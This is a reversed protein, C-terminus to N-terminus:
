KNLLVAALFYFLENVARWRSGVDGDSEGM